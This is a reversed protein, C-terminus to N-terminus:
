LVMLHKLSEMTHQYVQAVAIYKTWSNTFSKAARKLKQCSQSVRSLQQGMAGIIDLQAFIFEILEKVSLHPPAVGEDRIINKIIPGM